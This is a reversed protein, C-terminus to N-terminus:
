EGCSRTPTLRHRQEMFRCYARLWKCVGENAPESVAIWKAIWWPSKLDGDPDFRGSCRCETMHTAGLALAHSVLALRPGHRHGPQQQVQMLTDRLERVAVAGKAARVESASPATMLSAVAGVKAIRAMSVCSLLHGDTGRFVYGMIGVLLRTSLRGGFAGQEYTHPRACLACACIACGLPRRFVFDTVGTTPPHTLPRFFYIIHHKVGLFTVVVFRSFFVTKSKQDFKKYFIKSV